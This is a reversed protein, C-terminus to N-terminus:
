KGEDTGLDGSEYERFNVNVGDDDLTTLHKAFNILGSIQVISQCFSSRSWYGEIFINKFAAALNLKGDVVRENQREQNWTVDIGAVWAAMAVKWLIRVAAMMPSRGLGGNCHFLTNGSQSDNELLVEEISDLMYMIKVLDSSSYM